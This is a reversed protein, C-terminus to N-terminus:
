KARAVMDRLPESRDHHAPTVVRASHIGDGQFDVQVADSGPSCGIALLTATVAVASGLFGTRTMTRLEWFGPRLSGCVRRLAVIEVRLPHSVFIVRKPCRRRM